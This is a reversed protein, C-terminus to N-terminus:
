SQMVSKGSRSGDYNGEINVLFGRILLSIGSDCKVREGSVGGRFVVEPLVV